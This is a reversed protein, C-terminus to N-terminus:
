LSPNNRSQIFSVKRASQPADDEGRKVLKVRGVTTYSSSHSASYGLRMWQKPNGDFNFVVARTEYADEKVYFVVGKVEGDRVVLGYLDQDVDVERYIYRSSSRHSDIVREDDSNDYSSEDEEYIKLLHEAFLTKIKEIEAWSISALDKDRKFRGGNGVYVQDRRFDYWNM